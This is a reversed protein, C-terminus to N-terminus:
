KIRGGFIVALVRSIVMVLIGGLLNDYFANTQSLLGISTFIALLVAGFVIQLIEYRIRM